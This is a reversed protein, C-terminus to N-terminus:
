TWESLTKIEHVADVEVIHDKSEYHERINEPNIGATYINTRTLHRGEDEDCRAIVVFAKMPSEHGSDTCHM